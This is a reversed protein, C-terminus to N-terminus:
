LTYRFFTAYDGKARELRKQETTYSGPFLNNEAAWQDRRSNEKKLWWRMFICLCFSMTIVGILIGHGQHFEPRDKPLYIFAALVGGLNGAGVHMAIGVGRKLSGGINNGNWAVGLPVCPFIGLCALFTGTYQVGPITTSILMVWGVIATGSFVLMFIARQKVKDAFYGTGITVICGVVYPPVSLLQAQVNTYGMNRIITPLFLSFSYVATYIGITILMHVYIKWDKIADYFYRMDFEDALDSRDHVLRRKIELKEDKNLFKASDPTDVIIWYAFAAVFITLLGEIIFIWSWGSRGAVDEMNGIAAALLGGFAGAATAASFFLALRFGCEHRPYWLTIYYSVGPFLGGEALGLIARTALLGGFNTVFGMGIVIASWAVMIFTLWLSPSLRKIMMNSPVEAIVYTPFFIALAINYDIGSMGLDAELGFLRANGINTRDLFSLLYLLALFPLLRLDLKRLLRKTAAADFIPPGLEDTGTNPTEVEKYDPKLSNSDPTGGTQTITNM